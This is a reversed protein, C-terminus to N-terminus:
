SRRKRARMMINDSAGRLWRRSMWAPYCRGSGPWRGRCSYEIAIETLGCESGIHRLDSELLATIHTPYLGPREQFASFENKMVLALKSLWSLKNPTTVIVLGGPRAVRALERVFGRPNELHEITEIAAVVDGCDSELDLRQANLDSAIFEIWSREKMKGYAVLDLGVCREFDYRLAALLDGQGCGVDVITSRGSGAERIARTAWAVIHPASTGQSQAAVMGASM